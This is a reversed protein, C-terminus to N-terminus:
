VIFDDAYRVVFIKLGEKTRTGDKHTVLYRQEKSTTIPKVSEFITKELGDLTFNALIPSIIGGQPTGSNSMNFVQKDLHGAKLMSNLISKLHKNLPINSILWEHNINDFFGEIDADLVWKQEMNFRGILNARLIGIANKASRHKRFGYSHLDSDM